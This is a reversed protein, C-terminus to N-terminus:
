FHVTTSLRLERPEIPHVHFDDVGDLPEGPLRSTYFYTIDNDHSNLLNIVEASVQLRGWRYALRGNVVTTPKSRRSNDEIVPFSGFHRARLSATFPGHQVVVGGALVAEIAGPIRDQGQLQDTFRARSRTYEGDITIWKEPQYFLAFETGRRASPGQPETSGGDGYFLLESALNLRWYTATVSLGKLPRFRVGVEKGVSRVLPDVRSAPDGTQPDVRIVTGRADNSHFGQGYNM